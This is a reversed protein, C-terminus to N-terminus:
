SQDLKELKLHKQAQRAM